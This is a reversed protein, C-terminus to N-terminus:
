AYSSSSRPLIWATGAKQRAPPQALAFCRMWLALPREALADESASRTAKVTSLIGGGEALIDLYPVDHLKMALENQRWGGFVLHTHADVLGPTILKGACDLTCDANKLVSPVSGTGVATIRGDKAYVWADSLTLIEGQARGAKATRGTPTALMGIHSLLLTNM